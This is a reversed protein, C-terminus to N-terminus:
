MMNPRIDVSIQAQVVRSLIQNGIELYESTNDPGKSLEIYVGKMYDMYKKKNLM